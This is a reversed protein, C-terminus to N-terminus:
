HYIGLPPFLTFFIIVPPKAQNSFCSSPGLTNRLLGSYSAGGVAGELTALHCYWRWRSVM